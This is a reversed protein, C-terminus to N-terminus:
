TNPSHEYSLYPFFRCQGVSVGARGGCAVVLLEARAVFAGCRPGGKFKRPAAFIEGPGRPRQFREGSFPDDRVTWLHGRAFIHGHPLTFSFYIYEM